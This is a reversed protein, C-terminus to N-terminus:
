RRHDCERRHSHLEPGEPGCIHWRNSHSSRTLSLPIPLLSQSVMGNAVTLQMMENVEEQSFNFFSLRLGEFPKIAFQSLVDESTACFDPDFRKSWIFEIWGIKLVPLGLTVAM